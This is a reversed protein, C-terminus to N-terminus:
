YYYYYYYYYYYDDGSSSMFLSTVGIGKGRVKVGSEQGGVLGRGGLM